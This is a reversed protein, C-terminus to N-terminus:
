ADVKRAIALLKEDVISLRGELMIKIYDLGRARKMDNLVDLFAEKRITLEEERTM